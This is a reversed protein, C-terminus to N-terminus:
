SQLRAKGLPPASARRALVLGALILDAQDLHRTFRIVPEVDGLKIEDWRAHAASTRLGAAARARKAELGTLLDRKTLETILTDLPVKNEVIEQVRCIRRITDEFVIGAIVAAEDKKGHKLYEAGHDLFDGFTLAIARNEVTTLLGGDIEELLRDLLAEMGLEAEIHDSQAMNMLSCARESYPNSAPCVMQIAHQAAILWATVAHYDDLQLHSSGEYLLRNIRERVAKSGPM